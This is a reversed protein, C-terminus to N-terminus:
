MMGSGSLIGAMLAVAVIFGGAIAMGLLGALYFAGGFLLGGLLISTIVVEPSDHMFAILGATLTWEDDKMPRDEVPAPAAPDDTRNLGFGPLEQGCKPCTRDANTLTAQCFPCPRM